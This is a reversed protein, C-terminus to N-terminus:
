AMDKLYPFFFLFYHREEQRSHVSIHWSGTFSSVAIPLTYEMYDVAKWSM